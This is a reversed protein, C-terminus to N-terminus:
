QPNEEDLHLTEDPLGWPDDVNSEIRDLRRWIGALALWTITLCALMALTILLTLTSM